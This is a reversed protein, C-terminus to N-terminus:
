DPTADAPLTPPHTITGAALPGDGPPPTAAPRRGYLRRSGRRGNVLGVGGIILATGLIIRADIAEGLVVFGLGIGVIPLLYAVLSTRTSGWDRLLRFFVLYALGSGLIGLWVVAFAADPTLAVGLPDETLLAITATVLFAIFVQFFAPVMPRLGHVMKRAYVNGMAYSISSGIMALEGLVSSESAGGLSRSTVIVVGGFGVLLGVLRNVTIAEDTFVAAALVITFLPVTSNLIAALASDISQEGWTILTFPIVINILAMVALHGYTKPDRPLPQRAVALVIGLLLAGIGLRGAILVFTPLTEVGIKIFLYSSGWFLGLLGFLVWDGTTGRAHAAPAPTSAVPEPRTTM